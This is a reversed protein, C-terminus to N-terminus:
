SRHAATAPSAQAAPQAGRKVTVSSICGRLRDSIDLESPEGGACREHATTAALLDAADDETLDAFRVRAKGPGDIAAVGDRPCGGLCLVGRVAVEASGSRVLATIASTLRRGFEGTRRRDYRPCTRCVLLAM